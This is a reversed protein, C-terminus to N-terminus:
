EKRQFGQKYKKRDGFRLYVFVQRLQSKKIIRRQFPSFFFTFMKEQEKEGARKHAHRQIEVIVINQTAEDCPRFISTKPSLSTFGSTIWVNQKLPHHYNHQSTLLEKLNHEWIYAYYLLWLMVAVPQILNSHKQFLKNANKWVSPCARLIMTSNLFPPANVYSNRSSQGCFRKLSHM